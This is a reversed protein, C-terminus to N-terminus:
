KIHYENAIRERFVRIIEETTLATHSGKILEGIEEAMGIIRRATDSEVQEFATMLIGYLSESDGDEFVNMGQWQSVDAIELFKFIQQIKDEKPPLEKRESSTM